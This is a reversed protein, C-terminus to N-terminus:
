IFKWTGNSYSLVPANRKELDVLIYNTLASRMKQQPLIEGTETNQAFWIKIQYSPFYEFEGPLIANRSLFLPNNFEEGQIGTGTRNLGPHLNGYENVLVIANPNQGTIAQSINGYKDILCKEGIEAPTGPFDVFVKKSCGNSAFVEYEDNITIKNNFAFKETAYWVVTFDTDNMRGAICLHYEADKLIQLDQKAIQIIITDNKM